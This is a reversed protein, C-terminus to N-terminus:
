EEEDGIYKAFDQIGGDPFQYDVWDYALKLQERLRKIEKIEQLSLQEWHNLIEIFDHQTMTKTQKHSFVNM